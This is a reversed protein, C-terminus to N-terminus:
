NSLTAWTAAAPKREGLRFPGKGYTTLTDNFHTSHTMLYFMEKKGEKKETTGTFQAYLVRRGDWDDTPLLARDGSSTGAEGPKWLIVFLRSVGDDGSM